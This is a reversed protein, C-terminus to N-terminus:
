CFGLRDVYELLKWYELTNLSLKHFPINIKSSKTKTEYNLREQSCKINKGQWNGFRKIGIAAIKM